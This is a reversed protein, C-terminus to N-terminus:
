EGRGPLREMRRAVWRQWALLPTEDVDIDIAVDLDVSTIKSWPIRCRGADRTRSFRRVLWTVWRGMRPGVRYALVAPGAELAVLRPALGERLEVVIGDVRGTNIGNRDVLQKDLLDRVLEM